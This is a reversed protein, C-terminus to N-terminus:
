FNVTDKRELYASAAVDMAKAFPQQAKRTAEEFQQRGVRLVVSTPLVVGAEFALKEKALANLQKLKDDNTLPKSAAVKDRAEEFAASLTVAAAKMAAAYDAKARRIDDEIKQDKVEVKAIPIDVKPTPTTEAQERLKKQEKLVAVMLDLKRATKYGEIAKTFV